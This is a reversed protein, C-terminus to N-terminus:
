GRCDRPLLLLAVPNHKLVHWVDTLLLLKRATSVQLSIHSAAMSNPDLMSVGAVATCVGVVVIALVALACCFGGLTRVRTQLESV